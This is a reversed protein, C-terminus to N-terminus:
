PCSARLCLDRPAIWAIYNIYPNFWNKDQVWGLTGCFHLRLMKFLIKHVGMVLSYNSLVFLPVIKNCVFTHWVLVTPCDSWLNVFCNGGELIHCTHLANQSAKFHQKRCATLQPCSPFCCKMCVESRTNWFPPWSFSKLRKLNWSCLLSHVWHCGIGLLVTARQKWGQLSHCTVGLVHLRTYLAPTKSWHEVRWHNGLLGGTLGTLSQPGQWRQLLCRQPAGRPFPAKEGVHRLSCLANAGTQGAEPPLDQAEQLSPPMATNVPHPFWGSASAKIQLM